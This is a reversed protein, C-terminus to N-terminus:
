QSYSLTSELAKIETMVDKRGEVDMIMWDMLFRLFQKGDCKVVFGLPNCSHNANLNPSSASFRGNRRLPSIKEIKRRTYSSSSTSPSSPPIMTDHMVTMTDASAHGGELPATSTSSSKIMSSAIKMTKPHCLRSFDRMMVLMISPSLTLLDAIHERLITSFNRAMELVCVSRISHVFSDENPNSDLLALQCFIHFCNTVNINNEINTKLHNQVNGHIMYKQSILLLQLAEDILTYSLSGSYFFRILKYLSDEEEPDNVIMESNVNETFHESSQFMTSFYESCTALIGRWVYVREMRNPFFISFDSYHSNNFLALLPQHHVDKYTLEQSSTTQTM